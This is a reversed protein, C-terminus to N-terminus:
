SVCSRLCCRGICFAGDIHGGELHRARDLAERAEALEAQLRATEAASKAMAAKVEAQDAGSREALGLGCGKLDGVFSFDFLGAAICPDVCCTCFSM